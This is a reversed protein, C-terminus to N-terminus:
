INIPTISNLKLKPPYIGVFSCISAVTLISYLFSFIFSIHSVIFSLYTNEKFNLIQFFIMHLYNIRSKPFSTRVYDLHKKNYFLDKEKLFIPIKKGIFEINLNELKNKLELLGKLQFGYQRINAEPFNGIYQFCVILPMKHKIAHDQAAILAWNDVARKDRIMWYLTAEGKTTGKRLVRTRREIHSM